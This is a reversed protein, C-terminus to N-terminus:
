QGESEKTRQYRDRRKQRMRETYCEPCRDPPRGKGSYVLATGCDKCAVIRPKLRREKEM